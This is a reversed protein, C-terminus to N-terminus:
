LWQVTVLLSHKQYRFHMAVGRALSARIPTVTLKGFQLIGVFGRRLVYTTKHQDGFRVGGHACVGNLRSQNRNLGRLVM